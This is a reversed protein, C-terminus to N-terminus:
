LTFVRNWPASAFSACASSGHCFINKSFAFLFFTAAAVEAGSEMVYRRSRFWMTRLTNKSLTTSNRLSHFHSRPRCNTFSDTRSGAEDDTGGEMCLSLLTMVYTHLTMYSMGATGQLALVGSLCAALQSWIEDFDVKQRSLSM